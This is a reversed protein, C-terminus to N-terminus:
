CVFVMILGFYLRCYIYIYIISFIDYSEYIGFFIPANAVDNPFCRVFNTNNLYFIFFTFGNIYNM